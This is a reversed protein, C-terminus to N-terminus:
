RMVKFFSVQRLMENAQHSMNSGVTNVEEVLAANQQTMSDMQAIAANVQGIGASQESSATSIDSIKDSVNKVSDVIEVLTKGSNNVLESGLSIKHVSDNILTKIEKAAAASRQALTRVEGAVM